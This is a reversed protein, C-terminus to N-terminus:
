DEKHYFHAVLVLVLLSFFATLALIPISIYGGFESIYQKYCSIGSADCPANSSDGFYYVFNQYISILFGACLLPLAYRVVKKDSDWFAVGFMFVLPYIFIRQFWCLSCAPFNIIESYVLSFLTAFLSILFSIALFHKHVFDLLINKKNEKPRFLLILLIIVSFVQLLIAGFGLFINLYHMTETNMIDFHCLVLPKKLWSNLRFRARYAAVTPFNGLQIVM